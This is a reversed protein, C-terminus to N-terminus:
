IFGKQQQRSDVNKLAFNAPRNLAVDRILLVKARSFLYDLLKDRGATFPNM